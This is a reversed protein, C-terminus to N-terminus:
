AAKEMTNLMERQAINALDQKNEQVEKTKSKKSIKNWLPLIHSWLLIFPELTPLPLSHTFM